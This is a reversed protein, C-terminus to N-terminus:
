SQQTSDLWGRREYGERLEVFDQAVDPRNYHEGQLVGSCTAGVDAVHTNEDEVHDRIWELAKRYRKVESWLRVCELTLAEEEPTM